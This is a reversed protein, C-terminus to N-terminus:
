APSAAGVAGHTKESACLDSYCKSNSCTKRRAIDNLVRLLNYGGPWRGFGSEPNIHGAHGLDVLNSRWAKCFSRLRNFRMYRDNLSGVVLSPFALRDTPMAGFDIAGTHLRETEDLDCPAVLLASRVREATPRKALMAVLVSGLSHAVLDVADHKLIEEELAGRWDALTPRSWNRQRVLTAAPHDALVSM